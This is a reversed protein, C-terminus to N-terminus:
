KCSMVFYHITVGEGDMCPKQKTQNQSPSIRATLVATLEHTYYGKMCPFLVTERYEDDMIIELGQSSPIHYLHEM